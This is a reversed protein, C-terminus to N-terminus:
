WENGHDECHRPGVLWRCSARGWGGQRRVQERGSVAPGPHPRVQSRRVEHGRRDHDPPSLARWCGSRKKPPPCSSPAPGLQVDCWSWGGYSRARSGRGATPPAHPRTVVKKRRQKRGEVLVTFAGDKSRGNGAAEVVPHGVAPSGPPRGVQTTHAGSKPCTRRTARRELACGTRMVATLPASRINGCLQLDRSIHLIAPM